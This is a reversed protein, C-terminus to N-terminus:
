IQLWGVLVASVAFMLSNRCVRSSLKETRCACHRSQYVPLCVILHCVTDPTKILRRMQQVHLAVIDPSKLAAILWLRQRRMSFKTLRLELVLSYETKM